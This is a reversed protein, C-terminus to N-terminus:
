CPLLKIMDTLLGLEIGKRDGQTQCLFLLLLLLFMIKREVIPNVTLSCLYNTLTLNLFILMFQRIFLSSAM